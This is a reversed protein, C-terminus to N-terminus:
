NVVAEGVMEDGGTRGREQKGTRRGMSEREEKESEWGRAGGKRKRKGIGRGWGNGKM